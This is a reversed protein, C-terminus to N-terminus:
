GSERKAPKVALDFAARFVASLATAYKQSIHGLDRYAIVNGIVLPCQLSYCFWGTPDIFSAGGHGALRAVDSTLQVEAPRLSDSCGTASASAALLCDVPERDREPVDGLVVVRKSHKVLGDLATGLGDIASRDAKGSVNSYRGAIVTVDPHLAVGERLAWNFWARCEDTSTSGAWLPPSCGAKLLPVVLRGERRGLAAVDPVWMAAHSDGLVVVTRKGAPAGLRCIGHHIAGAHAMCGSPIHPLDGLLSPVPPILAPPIARHRGELAVENIVAPLVQRVEVAAPSGPARPVSATASQPAPGLSLVPVRAVARALRTERANISSVWTTAAVIVALVSAVGLLAAQPKRKMQVYRIPKEWLRYSVVSLAFASVLLLLNAGLSLTHGARQAAIVLVPWHWLYFAYSRDGLYRLPLIALLRSPSWRATTATTGALILLATGATPLIAAYGPFPTSGSFGVAAIAICVLGAWALLTGRRAALGALRPGLIALSAGLALEWARALTSLYAAAPHGPTDLVSFLLSAGAITLVLVLLARKRIRRPRDAFRRFSMGLALIFLAPWVLYFQEEVALSWFHQFASPPQGQAFYDTGIASFHINAAFLASPISDQLYQKARVINLLRYAAFDTVVLTLTAAPLIRRARRFYFEGLSVFRRRLAEALLLGTIVYGSLVFFVDVGVFGGKLFGVGAHGLAVLLVAVARLGQVDDRHRPKRNEHPEGENKM